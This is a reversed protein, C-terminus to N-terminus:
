GLDFNGVLPLGGSEWKLGFGAVPILAAVVIGLMKISPSVGHLDDILGIGAVMLTGLLIGLYVGEPKVFIVTTIAIAIVIGLGGIRPIPKGGHVRPRDAKNDVGGIRPALWVVLPTLALVIGAAALFGWIANSDRFLAHLSDAFSM